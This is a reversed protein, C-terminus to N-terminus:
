NYRSSLITRVFMMKLICHGNGMMEVSFLVSLLLKLGLTMDSVQVVIAM